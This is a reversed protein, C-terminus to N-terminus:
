HAGLRDNAQSLLREALTTQSDTDGYIVRFAPIAQELLTQADKFRSVGILEQALPLITDPSVNGGHQQDYSIVTGPPFIIEFKYPAAGPATLDSMTADVSNIEHEDAVHLASKQASQDREYHESDSGLTQAITTDTINSQVDSNSPAVLHAPSGKKATFEFTDSSAADEQSVPFAAGFLERWCRNAQLYSGQKEHLLAMRAWGAAQDIAAIAAVRNDNSMYSSMEEGVSDDSRHTLFSSGRRSAQAFFEYLSFRTLPHVRDIDRDVLAELHFSKIPAGVNRNWYKVYKAVTALRLNLSENKALFKRDFATPASMLWANGVRPFHVVDNSRFRFGPFVDVSPGQPFEVTISEGEWVTVGRAQGTSKLQHGVERVLQMPSFSRFVSLSDDSHFAVLLDVDSVPKVLTGRAASGMLQLAILELRVAEVRNSITLSVIKEGPPRREAYPDVPNAAPSDTRWPYSEEIRERVLAVNQNTLQLGSEDVTIREWFRRFATTVPSTTMATTQHLESKQSGVKTPDITWPM